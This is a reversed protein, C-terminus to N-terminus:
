HLSIFAYLTQNSHKYRSFCNSLVRQFHSDFLILSFLCVDDTGNACIECWRDVFKKERQLTNLATFVYKKGKLFLSIRECSRKKLESIPFALSAANKYKEFFSSVPFLVTNKKLQHIRREIM